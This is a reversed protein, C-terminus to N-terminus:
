LYILVPRVNPYGLQTLADAYRQVQQQYENDSEDTRTGTKFDVVWTTDTGFVVRDPRRKEGEIIMQMECAVRYRGDFFCRYEEKNLMNMLRQHVAKSDDASLHHARSYRDLEDDVDDITIIHSLIDHVMIGYRRPDAEIPTLVDEHQKAVVIRNEWEPFIVNDLRTNETPLVQRNKTKKKRPKFPHDTGCASEGAGLSHLKSYSGEKVFDALLTTDAQSGPECVVFLKDKPRTLAVYLLNMRDMASLNHEEEFRSDFNTEKPNKSDYVPVMAVPLGTTMTTTAADLEVWINSSHGGHPQPIVYIVVPAELGKAKHVSYLQVADMDPSTSSSLKKMKEDLYCVLDGISHHQNQAFRNAVGLLTAVFGSDCGELRFIRLLQEVCDYLSMSRLRESNFDIQVSAFCRSLDFNCERLKWMLADSEAQSLQKVEAYLHVALGASLRDSRDDLWALLSRLLHVVRSGDLVFSESSVLPITRGEDDPQALYNSVEILTDNFRALIYIDRYHYGLEDVQHRIIDRVKSCLADRNYFGLQVYGGTLDAKTQQRLDPVKSPDTLAGGLYLKPLIDADTGTLSLKNRVAWEFFYNNFEVVEQLTRFNRSLPDDKYNRRLSAGHRSDEVEPLMMFQRVDGQRFRYIAQKGDGVVLSHTGAEATDKFEYTMAEDLLPLMNLWQLRSTDQFEDILYNHYRTGIREYIFPAPEDAVVQAVRKNFESIHVVENERSYIEQLERVKGLVAMSYINTMLLLRTNYIRRYQQELDLIDNYSAFIEPTVDEIRERMDSPCKATYLKNSAVANDHMKHSENLKKMDGRAYLEFLNFFNQGSSFDTSKLKVRDRADLAKQAATKFKAVIANNDQRLQRFAQTFQSMPVKELQKLHAPADETLLEKSLEKISREINYNKGDEMRDQVWESLVMTLDDEGDTGALALLSEVSTQLIEEEDIQVNFNM